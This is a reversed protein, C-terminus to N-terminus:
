PLYLVTCQATGKKDAQKFVIALEEDAPDHGLSMMLTGLEGVSIRGDGDSDVMSFRERYDLFYCFLGRTHM